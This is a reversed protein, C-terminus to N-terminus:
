FSAATRARSHDGAGKARDTITSRSHDRHSTGSINCRYHCRRGDPLPQWILGRYSRCSSGGAKFGAVHAFRDEQISGIRGTHMPYVTGAREVMRKADSVREEEASQLGRRVKHVFTHSGRCMRASKRSNWERWAPDNRLLLVATRRDADTRRQGHTAHAGVAHLM